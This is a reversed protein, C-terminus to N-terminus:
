CARAAVTVVEPSGKRVGNSVMGPAGKRVVGRVDKRVQRRQGRRLVRAAGPEATGPVGTPVGRILQGSLTGPTERPLYGLVANLVM